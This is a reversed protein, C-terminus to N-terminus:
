WLKLELFELFKHITVGEAITAAFLRAHTRAIRSVIVKRVAIRARPVRPV